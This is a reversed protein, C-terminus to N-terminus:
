GDIKEVELYFPFLVRWNKDNRYGAEVKIKGKKIKVNKFIIEQAGADARQALQTKGMRIKMTGNYEMPQEFFCKVNFIADAKVAIDWHGYIEKQAWVGWSGKADNRSLLTPNEKKSGIVIPVNGLNPSEIIEEYWDDFLSKLEATLEPKEHSINNLESPDTKINYLELDSATANHGTMGVLKYDGRRVAINQYKEPFGRNWDFFIPRTEAWSVSDGM